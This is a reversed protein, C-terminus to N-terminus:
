VHCALCGRERRSGDADDDGLTAWVDRGSQTSQQRFLPRDVHNRFDGRHVRRGVRRGGCGGIDKQQTMPQDIVEAFRQKADTASVYRM